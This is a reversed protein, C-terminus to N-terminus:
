SAATEEPTEDEILFKHKESHERIATDIGFGSQRSFGAVSFSTTGGSAEIRWTFQEDNWIVKRVSNWPIFQPANPQIALTVGLESVEVCRPAARMERSRRFVYIAAGCVSGVVPGEWFPVPFFQLAVALFLFCGGPYLLESWHCYCLSPRYKM